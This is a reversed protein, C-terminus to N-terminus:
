RVCELSFATAFSIARNEFAAKLLASGLDGISIPAEYSWRSWAAHEKM